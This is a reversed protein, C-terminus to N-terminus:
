IYNVALSRIQHEFQDAVEVRKKTHYALPQTNPAHCLFILSLLRSSHCPYVNNMYEERIDLKEEKNTPRRERERERRRQRKSKDDGSGGNSHLSGNDSAISSPRFVLAVM